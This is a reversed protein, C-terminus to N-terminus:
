SPWTLKEGHVAHPNALVADDASAHECSATTTKSTIALLCCAASLSWLGRGVIVTPIPAM